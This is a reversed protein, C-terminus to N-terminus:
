TNSRSEPRPQRRAMWLTALPVIVWMALPVLGTQTGPVIPMLESYRWGWGSGVPVRTAVEEVAFAIALGTLLYPPLGRGLDRYLWVTSGTRLSAASYALVLIGADGFSARTCNLTRQWCTLSSVDYFPM